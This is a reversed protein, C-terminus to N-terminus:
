PRRVGLKLMLRTYELKVNLERLEDRLVLWKAVKADLEPNPRPPQPHQPTNMTDMTM